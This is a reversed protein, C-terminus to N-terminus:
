LQHIEMKATKLDEELKQELSWWNKERESVWWGERFIVKGYWDSCDGNDQRKILVKSQASAKPYYCYTHDVGNPDDIAGAYRGLRDSSHSMMTGLGVRLSPFEQTPYKKIFSIYMFYYYGALFLIVGIINLIAVAKKM